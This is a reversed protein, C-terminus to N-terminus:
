FVECSVPATTPAADNLCIDDGSGGDLTNDGLGGYLSEDGTSGTLTDDGAGGYLISVNVVNDDETAATDGDSDTCEAAVSAPAGSLTAADVCLTIVLTSAGLRESYDAVNTGAGGNIIDDGVGKKLTANGAPYADVGGEDFVDDGLGGNLTDNGDDGVLVDNGAGGTITDNGDGGHLEDDLAGGTLIDNQDGAVVVEADKVNDNETTTTDGDNANLDLSINLVATRASYDVVDKGNGGLVVDGCDPVANMDFTDDGDNGNLTDKDNACTGNAPGGNLKDDGPGGSITNSLNSGTITDALSSGTINEVTYTVDDGESTGGNPDGDDADATGASPGIDVTVATLLRASYDMTDGKPSSPADADGHYTDAGDMAAATKFTDDGVGGWLVDDGAGGQLTDNGDGGFVTIPVAAGVALLSTVGATLRASSIASAGAPSGAGTFSDNGSGLSVSIAEVAVMKVDGVKDATIEAYHDGAASSGMTWTDASASGRAMFTDSGGAFDISIGSGASATISGFGGALTDLIVKDANATGTVVLKTVNTTTLPTFSPSPGTCTYGNVKLIGGPASIVVTNSTGDVLTVTLTKNTSTWGGTGSSCTPVAVGLESESVGFEEFSDRRTNGSDGCAVSALVAGLAIITVSRRSRLM